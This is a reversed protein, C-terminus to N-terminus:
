LCPSRVAVQGCATFELHERDALQCHQGVATQFQMPFFRFLQFLQSRRSRRWRFFCEMQTRNKRCRVPHSSPPCPVGLLLLARAVEVLEDSRGGKAMPNDHRWSYQTTSWEQPATLDCPELWGQAPKTPSGM